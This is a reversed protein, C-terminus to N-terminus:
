PGDPMIGTAGIASQNHNDAMRIFRIICIIFLLLFCLTIAILLLAIFPAYWKTFADARKLIYNIKQQYKPQNVELNVNELSRLIIGYEYDTPEYFGLANELFYKAEEWMGMEEYFGLVPGVVFFSCEESNMGSRKIDELLLRLAEREKCFFLRPAASGDSRVVRNFIAKHAAEMGSEYCPIAIQNPKEVMVRYDFNFVYSDFKSIFIFLIIIFFVSLGFYALFCKLYLCRNRCEM